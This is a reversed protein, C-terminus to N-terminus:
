IDVAIANEVEVEDSIYIYIYIYSNAINRLYTESKSILQSTSINLRNLPNM